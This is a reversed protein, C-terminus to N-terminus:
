CKAAPPAGNPRVLVVSATTAVLAVSSRVASSLRAWAAPSASARRMTGYPARHSPSTTKAPPVAAAAGAVGSWTSASAASTTGTATSRATRSARPTPSTGPRASPAVGHGITELAVDSVHRPLPHGVRPQAHELDGHLGGRQHATRRTAVGQVLQAADGSRRAARGIDAEEGVGRHAVLGGGDRSGGDRRQQALRADRGVAHAFHQVALPQRQELPALAFPQPHARGVAVVTPQRRAVNRGP